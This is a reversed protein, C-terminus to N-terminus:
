ARWRRRADDSPPRRFPIGQILDAAVIAGQRAVGAVPGPFDALPKHERAVVAVADHQAIWGIQLQLVERNFSPDPPGAGRHNRIAAPAVCNDKSIPRTSIHEKYITQAVQDERLQSIMIIYTTRGDRVGIEIM